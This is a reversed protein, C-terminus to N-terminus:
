REVHASSALLRLRSTATREISPNPPAARSHARRATARITTGMFMPEPSGDPQFWREVSVGVFQPGLISSLLCRDGRSGEPVVEVAQGKELLV